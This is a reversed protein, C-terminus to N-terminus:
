NVALLKKELMAELKTDTIRQEDIQADQGKSLLRASAVNNIGGHIEVIKKWLDVPYLNLISRTFEPGMILLDEIGGHLTGYKYTIFPKKGTADFQQKGLELQLTAVYFNRMFVMIDFFTPYNLLNSVRFLLRQIVTVQQGDLGSSVATAFGRGAAPLYAVFGLLGLKASLMLFNKRSLLNKEESESEKKPIVSDLCSILYKQIVLLAPILTVKLTDEVDTTRFYDAFDPHWLALDGQALAVGRDFLDRDLQTSEHIGAGADPAQYDAIGLLKGTEQEYVEQKQEPSMWRFEAPSSFAPGANEGYFITTQPPIIKEDVKKGHYDPLFYYDAFPFSLTPEFAHLIERGGVLAAGAALTGDRLYTLFKRRSIPGRENM